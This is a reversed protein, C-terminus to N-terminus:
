SKSVLRKENHRQTAPAHTHEKESCCYFLNPPFFLGWYCHVPFFRQSSESIFTRSMQSSFFGQIKQPAAGRVSTEGPLVEKQPRRMENPASESGLKQADRLTHLYGRGGELVLGLRSPRSPRIAAKEAQGRNGRRPEM